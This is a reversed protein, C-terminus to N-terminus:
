RRPLNIIFTTGQGLGPSEAHIHGDHAKILARTITLGIGSGGTNRSRGTDVRYLREFIRSLHEADIGAGTDAVEITVGFATTRSRLTVTGGTPTHQVANAILNALAEHLRDPDGWVETGNDNALDLRVTVGTHQYSLAASDAASTLLNAVSVPRLRLDLRREEARSVTDLDQVLREIRSLEGDIRAFTTDDAPLVGDAIAEHYGRVSTLPTRLEHALDRLMEARTRETAAIERAMQNFARNLMTLESGFGTEPVRATFDGQAVASAAGALGRVPRVARRTVFAGVGLAAITAATTAVALSVLTARAFAMDLHTALESSIPGVTDVVHARFLGPALGLAVVLLTSAGVAVTLLQSLALRAGFGGRPGKM